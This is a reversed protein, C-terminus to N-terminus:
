IINLLIFVEQSNVPFKEKLNGESAFQLLLDCWMRMHHVSILERLKIDRCVICHKLKQNLM